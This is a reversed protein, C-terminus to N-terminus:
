GIYELKLGACPLSLLDQTEVEDRSLPIFYMERKSRTLGVFTTNIEQEFQWNLMGTRYYPLLNSGVIYVREAEDGKASHISSFLIHKSRDEPEMPFAADIGECFQKLSTAKDGIFEYCYELCRYHDAAADAMTLQESEMHREVIYEKQELLHSHFSGWKRGKAVQRAFAKMEKAIDRARVVGPKSHFFKAELAIKILPAVFRCLVLDGPKLEKSLNNPHMLQCSGDLADKRSKMEPSILSALAVHTKPCRQSESLPLVKANFLKAASDMASPLAAMYGSISQKKDGVFICRYGVIEFKKYLNLFARNADQIEDVLLYCKSAKPRRPYLKLKYPLWVMDVYDIVRDNSGIRFCDDLLDTAIRLGWALGRKGFPFRIAFYGVVWELSEVDNDALNLRAFDILQKLAEQWRELLLEAKEREPPLTPLAIPHRSQDEILNKLRRLGWESLKHSKHEDVTPMEGRFHAILLGLGCGHATSVNVRKPIRPDNEFAEKVSVNFMLVNIKSRPELLGIIGKLVTSKGSGATASIIINQDDEELAEFVRMQDDNWPIAALVEKRWRQPTWPKDVARKQQTM